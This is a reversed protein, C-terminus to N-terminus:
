QVVITGVLTLHISCAYRYTGPNDFKFSVSDNADLAGSRLLGRRESWGTRSM